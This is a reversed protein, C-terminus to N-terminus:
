APAQFTIDTNASIHLPHEYYSLYGQSPSSRSHWSDQPSPRAPTSLLLHRTLYRPRGHSSLLYEHWTNTGAIIMSAQPLPPVYIANDPLFATNVHLELYSPPLDPYSSIERCVLCDSGTCPDTYHLTTTASPSYTTQWAPLTVLQAHDDTPFSESPRPRVNHRIPEDEASYEESSSSAVLDPLSEDSSEETAQMHYLNNLKYKENVERRTQEAEMAAGSETATEAHDYILARTKVSGLTAHINTTHAHLAEAFDAARKKKKHVKRRIHLDFM